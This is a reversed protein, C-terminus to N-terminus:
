NYSSISHNVFFTDKLAWERLSQSLLKLLETSPKSKKPGLKILGFNMIIIIVIVIIIIIIPCIHPGHMATVVRFAECMRNYEMRM